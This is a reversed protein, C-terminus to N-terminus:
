PSLHAEYFRLIADYFQDSVRSRFTHDEEPYYLCEIHVGARTAAQCTEEAWGIPVTQDATGHHLQVPSTIYSYYYMASIRKLPAPSIALEKQFTPLIDVMKRLHGMQLM